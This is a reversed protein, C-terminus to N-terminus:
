GNTERLRGVGSMDHLGETAIRRNAGYRLLALSFPAVDVVQTRLVNLERTATDIFEAWADDGNMAPMTFTVTNESANLVLLLTDGKIPRGRDDTEDTGEGYILM